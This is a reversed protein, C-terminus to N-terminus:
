KFQDALRTNVNEANNYGPVVAQELLNIYNQLVASRASNNRFLEYLATQAMTGARSRWDREIGKATRQMSSFAGDLNRNVTRLMQATSTVKGTDISQKGM